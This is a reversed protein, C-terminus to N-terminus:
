ENGRESEEGSDTTGNMARQLAEVIRAQRQPHINNSKSRAPKDQQGQWEKMRKEM